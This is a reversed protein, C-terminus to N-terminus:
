KCLMGRAVAEATEEDTLNKLLELSFAMATAPGKSTILNGDKVVEDSSFKAGTLEGEFGPYCTAKRGELVGFKGLASPAACIAAVFRSEDNIFREAIKKVGNHTKINNTGGLGGPCVIMKVNNFNVEDFLEDATLVINHAGHVEKRGMLSVGVANVEGRRLVDIITLAEVEECGDALFVVTKNMKIGWKKL